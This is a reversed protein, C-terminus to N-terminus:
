LPCPVLVSFAQAVPSHWLSSSSGSAQTPFHVSYRYAEMRVIRDGLEPAAYKWRECLSRAVQRGRRTAKADDWRLSDWLHKEWYINPYRYTPQHALSTKWEQTQPKITFDGVAAGVLLDRADNCEVTSCGEFTFYGGVAPPDPSFQNWYQHVRLTEGINGDDLKPLGLQPLNAIGTWIMYVLFFRPIWLGLLAGIRTHALKKAGVSKKKDDDEDRNDKSNASPISSSTFKKVVGIEWFASPLAVVAVIISISQFRHLHLFIFLPMQVAFIIIGVGLYRLKTNKASTVALILPGVVEFVIGFATAPRTLEPFALVADRALDTSAFSQTMALYVATFQPYTWTTGAARKALMTWYMVVIQLLYALAAAGGIMTSGEPHPKVGAFLWSKSNGFGSLRKSLFRPILFRDTPLFQMWFLFHCATMDSGDAIFENRASVSTVFLWLLPGTLGIRFGAGYAIAVLAHIAFLCYQLEASGRYFLIKHFLLGHRTENPDIMPFLGRDHDAESIYWAITDVVVRSYLEYLVWLSMLVRCLALSRLDLFSRMKRLSVQNFHFFPLRVM